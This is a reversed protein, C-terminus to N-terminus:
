DVRVSDPPVPGPRVLVPPPYVDGWDSLAEIEDYRQRWRERARTELDARGAETSARMRLEFGNIAQTMETRMEALSQNTTEVLELHRDNHRRESALSAKESALQEKLAGTAGRLLTLEDRDARIGEFFSSISSVGWFTVCLTVVGVLAKLYM